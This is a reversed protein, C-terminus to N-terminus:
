EKEYMDNRLDWWEIKTNYWSAVLEPMGDTTKYPGWVTQCHDGHEEWQAKTPQPQVVYFKGDPSYAVVFHHSLRFDTALYTYIKASWGLPGLAYNIAQAHLMAMGDCDDGGERLLTVPCKVIDYIQLLPDPTWFFKGRFVNTVDQPTKCGDLSLGYPKIAEEVRINWVDKQQDRSWGYKVGQGLWWAATNYVPNM